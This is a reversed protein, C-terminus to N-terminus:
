EFRLISAPDSRSAEFAPVFSACLSIVALIAMAAASSFPDSQEVGYLQGELVRTAGFSLVLGLLVGACTLAFGDKVVMLLIDSSKAGLALRIGIEKSRAATTYATVGYIGIASLALALAAFSGLLVASFGAKSSAEATRQQMTRIDYVPLSDDLSAIVQRLAPIMVQTELRSKVLLFSVPEMPQLYSLYVSPQLAEEIRGYKVDGVVGIVEAWENEEWGVGLWLRKGVAEEGPWLQREAQRNVMAVRPAGERDSGAFVRGKILPVGLTQFYDSGVSHTLVVPLNDLPAQEDGAVRAVTGSFNSSLPTSSSVSASVIGPIASVRQLLDENFAVDARGLPRHIKLTLVRDADFGGDALRLLFLSHILLGACVLLMVAFGIQVVVLSKRVRFHGLGQTAPRTGSDKLAVGAARGSIRVAPLLGFMVATLFCLALNFGLVHLDVGAASFNLIQADKARFIPDSSPQISSLLDTCCVAVLIGILGGLFALVLAETFLQRVVRARTAGLALRTAIEQSRSNGRALLLNAVNVCAILLVFGVAGLAILMSRRIAPDLNGDQLPVVRLGPEVAGGGFAKGTEENIRQAVVQIRANALDVPIGPKLKGVVEHWHSNPNQLRQPFMLVPAMMMPVWVDVVGTQGKFGPPLVGVIKLPKGDLRITDGIITEGGFSRKWLDHSVLAVPHAGPRDDEESSFSRGAVAKIDFLRFYSASVFEVEVRQPESGSTTLGFAQQAIAAIEEFLDNNEALVRFKPYSWYFAFHSPDQEGPAQRLITVIRDADSYPLPKLLVQNIVTFISTNAGIGLALSVVAVATFGPSKKLMRFACQLDKLFSNM